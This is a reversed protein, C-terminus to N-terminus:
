GNNYEQMNQVWSYAPPSQGRTPVLGNLMPEALEMFPYLGESYIYDLANVDFNLVDDFTLTTATKATLKVRQKKTNSNNRIIYYLGVTFNKTANGFYLNSMITVVNSGALGGRVTASIVGIANYKQNDHTVYFPNGSVAYEFWNEVQKKIGWGSLYGHSFNVQDKLATQNVETTGGSSVNRNLIAGSKTNLSTFKNGLDFKVFLFVDGPNISMLPTRIGMLTGSLDSIEIYCSTPFLISINNVGFQFTLAGVAPTGAIILNNSSDYINAIIAESGILGTINVYLWANRYYGVNDFYGFSPGPGGVVDSNLYIESVTSIATSVQYIQTNDVYVVYQNVSALIIFSHWGTSRSAGAFLTTPADTAVNIPGYCYKTTSVSNRVGVSILKGDNLKIKFYPGPQTTQTSDDYFWVQTFWINDVATDTIVRKAVPISQSNAQNDWSKIGAKAQNTSTAPTGNLISWGDASIFNDNEFTESFVVGDRQKQLYNIQSTGVPM